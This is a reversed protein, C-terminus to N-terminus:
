VNNGKVTNVIISFRNQLKRLFMSVPNVKVTVLESRYIEGNPLIEEVEPKEPAAEVPQVEVPKIPPLDILAPLPVPNVEVVEPLNAIPQEPLVEPEGDELVPIDRIVPQKNKLFLKEEKVVAEGLLIKVDM